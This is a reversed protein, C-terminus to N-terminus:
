FKTTFILKLYFHIIGNGEPGCIIGFVMNVMTANWAMKANKLNKLHEENHFDKMWTKSLKSYNSYFGTSSVFGCSKTDDDCLM